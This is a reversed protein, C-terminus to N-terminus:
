MANEIKEFVVIFYEIIIEREREEDKRDDCPEDNPVIWAMFLRRVFLHIGNYLLFIYPIMSLLCCCMAWSRVFTEAYPSLKLGNPFRSECHASVDFWEPFSKRWARISWVKQPILQPLGMLSMFLFADM